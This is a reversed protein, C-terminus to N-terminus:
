LLFSTAFPLTRRTGREGTVTLHDPGPTISLVPEAEPWAVAGIVHRVETTSFPALALGRAQGAAALPDPTETAGIGLLDPAAGEEVGLVHVHRGNWPAYDRGADSHWFMTMPLDQARRLSLYLDGEGHRTVATWGLAHGPAEIGAAFDEHGTIWPYRTLDATGGAALPFRAPDTSRAPYALASRGRVPDTEPPAPSTEFWRKPSFRLTAGGPLSLMAHNAAPVTGQGGVFIHRQYVFPHDDQLTLDKLVTAGFARHDLVARLGGGAGGQDQITWHGNATWGHMGSAGEAAAFPACFFDGALRALHLAIGEIREGSLVWPATHLPAIRRGQDTVCLDRLFGGLPDFTFAIGAACVHIM